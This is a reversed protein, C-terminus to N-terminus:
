ALHQGFWDITAAYAADAQQANYRAGTENFFAHDVGPFVRLEHRLGAATLATEMADKSGLLM